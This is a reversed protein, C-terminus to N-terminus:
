IAKIAEVVPLRMAKIAPPIAGIVDLLIATLCAVTIGVSDVRLMFAGMTFRVATGNIFLLAFACAFLAGGCALLTAEQILTLMIARRRYGIAQLTALERIRGMVAGYMTNLGAFIGSGAVLCVVVWGLMRVPRYHKQLDAYYGARASFAISTDGRRSLGVRVTPGVFLESLALDLEIAAGGDITPSLGQAWAAGLMPFGATAFLASGGAGLTEGSVLSPIREVPRMRVPPSPREPADTQASTLAVIAALGLALM